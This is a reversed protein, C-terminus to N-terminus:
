ASRRASTSMKRSIEKSRTTTSSAYDLCVFMDYTGDEENVTYSVETAPQDNFYAEGAYEPYGDENIKVFFPINGGDLKISCTYTLNAEYIEANNWHEDWIEADIITYKAGDPVTPALVKDGAHPYEFNIVIKDIVEQWSAKLTLDEDAIVDEYLTDELYWGKFEWADEGEHILGLDAADLSDLLLSGQPVKVSAPAEGHGNADFSVTVNDAEGIQYMWTGKIVYAGNEYNVKLDKYPTEGNITIKTNEANRGPVTLTVDLYYTKQDKFVSDKSKWSVEPSFDEDIQAKIEDVITATENGVAPETITLAIDDFVPAPALVKLRAIVTEFHHAEVLRGAGEILAFGPGIYRYALSSQYGEDEPDLGSLDPNTDILLPGALKLLLYMDDVTVPMGKPLYTGLFTHFEQAGEYILDDKKDNIGEALHTLAPTLDGMNDIIADVDLGKFGGGFYAGVVNTIAQQYSLKAGGPLTMEASYDPRTEIKDTLANVIRDILEKNDRAEYEFSSGLKKLEKNVEDVDTDGYYHTVGYRSMDWPPLHTFIDNDEMYNHINKYSSDGTATQAPSEFTYAYTTEKPLRSAIIGAIAGGRSQGTIWIKTNEGTLTEIEKMATNAASQFGYHEDEITDGNVTFNQQWGVEKVSSDLAYSQIIIAVLNASEGDKEITKRAWMYACGDKKDSHDTLHLDSFGIKKFFAAAPGDKDSSAVSAVLQMSVLALADNKTEPSEFFWDDTYYFSDSLMTGREVTSYIDATGYIYSSEDAAHVVSILSLMMFSALILSLIRRM